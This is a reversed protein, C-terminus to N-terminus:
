RSKPVAHGCGDLPPSGFGDTEIPRGDVLMPHRLWRTLGISPDDVIRYIKSHEVQPDELHVSMTLVESVPVDAAEFITVWAKTTRTKLRDGILEYLESAVRENPVARLHGAREGLGAAALARKIQRGSVPALVIAGDKTPLARPARLQAAVAHNVNGVDQHGAFLDPGNFYAVADLMSVDAVCGTGDAERGHLGALAAQVVFMATVKDALYMPVLSPDKGSAAAIGTRAQIISDFTPADARPGSQGYGSVRVWILRPYKERVLDETLGLKSAVAPRWNTLLVDTGALLELLRDMGAPTKLNLVKSTKNRNTARFMLRGGPGDPGFRRFPDGDPPEVKTVVAGLDALALGAFPVSVYGAAEVVRVGALPRAAGESSPKSPNM